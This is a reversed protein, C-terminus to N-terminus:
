KTSSIYNVASRSMTYSKNGISGTLAQKTTMKSKSYGYTYKKNAPDDLPIEVKTCPLWINVNHPQSIIKSMKMFGLHDVAERADYLDIAQIDFSQYEYGGNLPLAAKAAAHLTDYTSETGDVSFEKEVVGYREELSTVYSMFSIPVTQKFIWWGSTTYGYATARTILSDTIGREINLDIMNKGYEITQTTKELEGRGIIVDGTDSNPNLVVLSLERRYGSTNHKRTLKIFAYGEYKSLLGGLLDTKLVEWGTKYVTDDGQISTDASSSEVKSIGEEEDSLDSGTLSGYWKVPVISKGNTSIDCKCCAFLKMLDYIEVGDTNTKKIQSWDIRFMCDNLYALEGECYIHKNLNFDDNIQTIRGQWIIEDDEEIEITGLMLQLDGWCINSFPVDAEFNGAENAEMTLSPNLLLLSDDAVGSQYILTRKNWLYYDESGRLTGYYVKYGM